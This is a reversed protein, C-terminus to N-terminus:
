GAPRQVLGVLPVISIIPAVLAFVVLAAPALGFLWGMAVSGLMWATGYAADFLGYATGRRAAPVLDAVAARMVSEQLGMAAGWLIMGLVIMWGRDGLFLLPTTPLTLLPLVYLVRLGIRDYATGAFYAVIADVGMALAFLLPIGAPAVLHTIELRYAVLVFHAFGAVGLAVFALYRWYIPSFAATAGEASAIPEPPPQRRRVFVLIGLAVIAPLVLVGFGLRYGSWAVAGAVVLPGLTAGIQDLLEHLGFAKGRGIGRSADALLADRPPTRIGKGLREAFVLGAAPAVTSVLALLPLALLNVAYGLYILPWAHGRRDVFSGSALRLAYGLFEGGGAILGVLFPSAGLVALYPGVISRGGEYTFDAFLSVVGFGIIFRMAAANGTPHPKPTM